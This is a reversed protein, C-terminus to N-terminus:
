NRFARTCRLIIGNTIPTLKITEAIIDMRTALNKCSMWSCNWFARIWCLEGICRRDESSMTREIASAFRIISREVCGNWSGFMAPVDFAAFLVFLNKKLELNRIKDTSVFFLQRNKGQQLCFAFNKTFLFTRKNSSFSFNPHYQENSRRLRM